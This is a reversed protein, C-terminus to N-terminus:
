PKRVIGAKAEAERAQQMMEENSLPKSPKELMFRPVPPPALMEETIGAPLVIKQAAKKTSKETTSTDHALACSASIIVSTFLVTLQIIRKM